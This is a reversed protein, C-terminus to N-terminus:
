TRRSRGLGRFMRLVKGSTIEADVSGTPILESFKETLRRELTADRFRQLRLARWATEVLNLWLKKEPKPAQATEANATAQGQPTDLNRQSVPFPTVSYIHIVKTGEHLRDRIMKLLARTPERSVNAGDIFLTKRRRGQKDRPSELEVAPMWPVVATCALLGDVLATARPVVELRGTATDAVALGLHIPQLRAKESYYGVTKQGCYEDAMVPPAGARRQLAQDLVRDMAARAYYGYDFMEVLFARLGHETLISNGLDYSTL